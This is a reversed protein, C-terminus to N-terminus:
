SARATERCHPGAFAPLEDLHDRYWYVGRHEANHDNVNPHADLFRVVDEVSFLPDRTGLAAYVDRIVDYDAPYDLVVRHSLSCDRRGGWTVNALRFREPHNWIFSTTHEREFPRTAEHWASSIAGFSMVEVDNGDPHTPPHLNSVFDLQTRRALYAALVADVIGPDILPCDSPIKVVHAAGYLLAARYHRDLLDTAHGRYCQVGRQIAIAEIADDDSSTTTAVVVTGVLRAAKVRDLM